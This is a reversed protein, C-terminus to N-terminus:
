RKEKPYNIKGDPDSLVCIDLPDGDGPLLIDLDKELISGLFKEEVQGSHTKPMYDRLRIGHLPNEYTQPIAGYHFYNYGQDFNVGYLQKIEGKDALKLPEISVTVLETKINDVPTVQVTLNAPAIKQRELKKLRKRVAGKQPFKQM